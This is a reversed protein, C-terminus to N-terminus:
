KALRDVKEEQAELRNDMRKIDAWAYNLDRKIEKVDKKINGVDYQLVSVDNQLLSINKEMNDQSVKIKQVDSTLGQLQALIQRLLEEEM